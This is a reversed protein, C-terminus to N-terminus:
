AQLQRILTTLEFDVRECMLLDGDFDFNAVLSMEIRRGTPAVGAFPRRRTGTVVCEVVVAEDAHHL